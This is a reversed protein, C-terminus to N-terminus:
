ATRRRRPSRHELADCPLTMARVGRRCSVSCIRSLRRRITEASLTTVTEVSTVGPEAVLPISAKWSWGDDPPHRAHNREGESYRHKALSAVSKHAAQTQADNPMGPMCWFDTPNSKAAASCAISVNRLLCTGPGGEKELEAQLDKDKTSSRRRIEATTLGRRHRGPLHKKIYREARKRSPPRKSRRTPRAKPELLERETPRTQEPNEVHGTTPPAIEKVASDLNERVFFIPPRMSRVEDMYDTTRTFFDGMSAHRHLKSIEGTVPNRTQAVLIGRGIRELLWEDAFRLANHYAREIERAAAEKTDRDPFADYYLSTPSLREELIQWTNPNLMQAVIVLADDYFIGDPPIDKM